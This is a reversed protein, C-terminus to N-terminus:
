SAARDACQRLSLLVRRPRRPDAPPRGRLAWLLDENQDASAILIEADATVTEIWVVNDVALGHKGM